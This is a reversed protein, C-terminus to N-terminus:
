FATGISFHIAYEDEGRERDRDPNWAFDLRAPGVPLLYLLGCGVGPRFGKFYDALTADIVESRHAFPQEGLEERTRNPSVNGYDFFLSAALRETLRRRLEIAFVNFADGGLPEGAADRPGLQAEKFSRVTNEGGNFFREGIPITLQGRGPLILGSDYRLALTNKESLPLFKRLGLNFRYYSIGSGLFPDALEAAAFARHGSSPFFIDDRRDRSVQFRASATTYDRELVETLSLSDVETINSARYLYGLTVALGKQFKRSFLLSAGLEERTFSPEERRRYHVPFDASIESGLLWPDTVTAQLNASKTSGGAELRFVRGTGFLNNEQYGAGGRLLEYSGWGGQLFVERAMAEQLDVELVREGEGAGEALGIAVRSFLGTQYLRRFSKQKASASYRDGEALTLRDRIFAEGTRENGRIVISGISARPGSDIAVDLRVQSFNLGSSELVTVEADPFGLESFIERVRSQLLLKRRPVYPKGLLEEPLDELLALAEPGVDEHFGVETITRRVGEQIACRVTVRSRDESFDFEPEGVLVQSYGEGLYLDRIESLAARMDAEVFPLSALGSFGGKEEVFFALLEESGFVTNGAFLIGAVTVRPGESVSFVLREPAEEPQFAYSVRAFAYGDQRYALEMQFAADDATAAPFESFPLAALEEAAAQRLRGESFAQNGAFELRYERAWASGGGLQLVLLLCLFGAEAWRCACKKAGGRRNSGSFL